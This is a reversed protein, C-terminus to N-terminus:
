WFFSKIKSFLSTNPTYGEPISTVAEEVISVYINDLNDIGLEKEGFGNTRFFNRIAMGGHFHFPMPTANSITSAWEGDPNDRIIKKFFKLEEEKLTKKFLDLMKVRDEDKLAMLDEFQRIESEKMEKM